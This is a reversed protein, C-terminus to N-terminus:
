HFELDNYKGGIFKLYIGAENMYEMHEDSLRSLFRKPLFVKFQPASKIDDDQISSLVESVPGRLIAIIADGYKTTIREVQKILYSKGTELDEIKKRELYKASNLAKLFNIKRTYTVEM